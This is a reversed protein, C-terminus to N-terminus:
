RSFTSLLPTVEAPVEERSRAASEESEGPTSAWDLLYRGPDVPRWDSAGASRRVEYHLHPGVSWGSEGVTAIREGGRVREGDRVLLRECHGYLTVFRDGHRIAVVRGLRWWDTRRDTPVVGAYTVVGDAAAVIPTGTPAALDLGTHFELQQTYPNRQRGFGSTRVFEEGGLPNRAPTTRSREPAAREFASIRELRREIRGLDQELGAELDLGHRVTADFISEHPPSEAGALEAGAVRSGVPDEIEYAVEIRGLRAGLRAGEARVEGLREVLSQLRGGLQVRRSVQVGYEKRRLLSGIAVPSLLVGAAVIAVYLTLITWANRVGRRRLRLARSRGRGARPHYHIELM